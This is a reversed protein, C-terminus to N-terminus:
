TLHEANWLREFTTDAVDTFGHRNRFHYLRRAKSPHLGLRDSRGVCYADWATAQQLTLEADPPPNGFDPDLRDKIRHFVRGLVDVVSDDSLQRPKKAHEFAGGQVAITVPDISEVRVRGLPSQEEVEIRIEVDDGRFGGGSFLKDVIRQFELARQRREPDDVTLRRLWDSGMKVHTVEDALMWDECFELVPDGVVNGFEKMTNFVDIALGELA